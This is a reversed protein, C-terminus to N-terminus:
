EQEIKENDKMIKENDEKIKKDKYYDQNPGIEEFVNLISEAVEYNEQRRKSVWEIAKSLM